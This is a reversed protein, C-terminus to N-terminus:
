AALKLEETSQTDERKRGYLLFLCALLLGVQPIQSANMEPAVGGGGGVVLNWDGANNTDAVLNYTYGEFNGSYNVGALTNFGQLVDLYTTNSLLSSTGSIGFNMSGASGGVNLQGYNSPSSIIINYNTPLTGAFTLAGGVAGQLNNITLATASINQVGYGGGGTSTISGLNNLTVMGTDTSNLVVASGGPNANTILGSNNITIAPNGVPPSGYLYLSWGGTSGTITGTTDITFIGPTDEPYTFFCYGGPATIPSLCNGDAMAKASVVGLLITVLSLLLKNM